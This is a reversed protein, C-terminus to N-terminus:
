VFDNTPIYTLSRLVIVFGTKLPTLIRDYENINTTATKGVFYFTLM